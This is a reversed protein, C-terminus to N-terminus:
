LNVARWTGGSTAGGAATEVLVVGTGPTIAGATTLASGHVEVSGSPRRAFYTTGDSAVGALTYEVSTSPAQAPTQSVLTAARATSAITTGGAAFSTGTGVVTAVRYNTADTNLLVPTGVAASALTTKTLTFTGSPFVFTSGSPNTATTSANAGTLRYVELTLIVCPTSDVFTQTAAGFKVQYTTTM